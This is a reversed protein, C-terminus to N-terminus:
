PGKQGLRSSSKRADLAERVRTHEVENFAFGVFILAGVAYCLAPTLSFLARLALKTEETQEQNPLFDFEQLVWGTLLATIAGASKRVFNWVALYTGEKRQGTLYEDFDIIDANISPAVIPACGGAAGLMPPIIWILLDDGTGIFFLAGFGFATAWMCVLWLRKKGFKRSLRIWMPTLLFQPLFYLLIIPMALEPRHLVYQTVYPVLMGISAVGFSDIFYVALLRRAHRNRFVDRFSNLIAVSGRGQYEGREPLKWAAYLCLVAVLPAGIWGMLFGAAERTNEAQDILWYAGVGLMLGLASIVHRYGFLRTREHYQETLEVGLAGYPIFFATTATEYVLLALAMWIVVGVAGLSSPPSWLMWIGVAVPLSAAFMWSRRRGLGSRTRDSLYGAMPDSVADWLRSVAILTGMVGPAILLIDTSFKMLYIIFLLGTFGFGVSPAAYALIVRISLRTESTSIAPPNADPKESV